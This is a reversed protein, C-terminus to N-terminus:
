VGAKEMSKLDRIARSACEIGFKRLSMRLAIRRRELAQRAKTAEDINVIAPHEADEVDLLGDFFQEIDSVVKNISQDLQNRTGHAM